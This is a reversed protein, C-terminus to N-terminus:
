IKGGSMEGDLYLKSGKRIHKIMMGTARILKHRRINNRTYHLFICLKRNSKFKLNM